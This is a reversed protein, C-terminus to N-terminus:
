LDTPCLYHTGYYWLHDSPHTHDTQRRIVSRFHRLDPGSNHLPLETSNVKTFTFRFCNTDQGRFMEPRGLETCAVRM